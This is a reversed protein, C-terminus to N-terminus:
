IAREAGRHSAGLWGGVALLPSAAPPQPRLLATQLGDDGHETSGGPGVLDVTDFRECDLKMFRWFSIARWSRRWSLSARLSSRFLCRSSAAALRASPMSGSMAPM